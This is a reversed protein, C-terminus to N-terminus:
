ERVKQSTLPYESLPKMSQMKLRNDYIFLVLMSISSCILAAIMRNVVIFLRNVQSVIKMQASHMGKTLEDLCCMLMPNKFNVMQSPM